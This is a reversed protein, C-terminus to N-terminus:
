EEHIATITKLCFDGNDVRPGSELTPQATIVFGM